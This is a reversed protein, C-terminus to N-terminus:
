ILYFGFPGKLQDSLAMKQWQMGFTENLMRVLSFQKGQFPQVKEEKASKLFWIQQVWWDRAEDSTSEM